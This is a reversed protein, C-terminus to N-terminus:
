DIRKPALLFKYTLLIKYLLKNLLSAYFQDFTVFFIEM